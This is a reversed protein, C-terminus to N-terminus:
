RRRHQCLLARHKFCLTASPKYSVWWSGHLGLQSGANVLTLSVPTVTDGYIIGRSGPAGLLNSAGPARPSVSARVLSLSLPLSPENHGGEKHIVNDIKCPLLRGDHILSIILLPILLEVLPSERPKQSNLKSQSALWSITTSHTLNMTLTYLSVPWLCATVFQSEFMVAHSGNNHIVWQNTGNINTSLNDRPCQHWIENVCWQLLDPKRLAIGRIVTSNTTTTVNYSSIHYAALVLINVWVKVLDPKQLLSRLPSESAFSLEDHDYRIPRPEIFQDRNKSVPTWCWLGISLHEAGWFCVFTWVIGGIGPWSRLSFGWISGFM